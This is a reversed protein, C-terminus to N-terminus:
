CDFVAFSLSAPHTCRSHLVSPFMTVSYTLYSYTLSVSLTEGFVSIFCLCTGVVFVAAKYANIFYKSSKENRVIPVTNFFHM